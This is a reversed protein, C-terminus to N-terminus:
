RLPSLECLHDTNGIVVLSGDPNFSVSSVLGLDDKQRLREGNEMEWIRVSQDQGYDVKVISANDAGFLIHWVDGTHGTLIMAIDSLAALAMVSQLRDDQPVEGFVTKTGAAPDFGTPSILTEPCNFSYGGFTRSGLPMGTELDTITMELQLRSLSLFM